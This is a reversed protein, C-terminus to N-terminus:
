RGPRSASGTRCRRRSSARRLSVGAGGGVAASDVLLLEVVRVAPDVGGAPADGRQDGAGRSHQARRGRAHDGDGAVGRRWVVRRGGGGRRVLAGDDGRHDPADEEGGRRARRSVGDRGRPRGHLAAGGAHLGRRVLGGGVDGRWAYAGRRRHARVVRRADAGGGARQFLGRRAAVGHPHLRVSDRRPGDGDGHAVRVLLGLM